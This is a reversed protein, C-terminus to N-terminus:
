ELNVKKCQQILVGPDTPDYVVISLYPLKM